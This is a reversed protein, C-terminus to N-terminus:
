SLGASSQSVEHFDNNKVELTEVFFFIGFTLQFRIIEKEQNQWAHKEVSVKPKVSMKVSSSM